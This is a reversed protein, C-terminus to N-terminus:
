VDALGDFDFSLNFNKAGHGERGYRRKPSKPLSVTFIVYDKQQVFSLLGGMDKVLRYCLPLGISQGGEAFPMFLTEPHEVTLDPAQNKFEIRIEKDSEYAKIILTGGQDMANTANRILNIFIQTLVEPDAYVAPLKSALDLTCRVQKKETEPSLLALCEALITNASCDKPHIEVPELYNRIRSLIRELRQSENLIIDCEYMDPFKQKLRQAFGGISVLPNRIEHAVEASIAGLTKLKERQVLTKELFVRDTIDLVFGELHEEGTGTGYSSLPISKLIAHIIHNDRHLFKCEMSVPAGSNFASQFMEKARDRDEPHIRNLFWDPTNMSEEPSYGLMSSCAENVFDTQLDRNLVYILLPINQVLQFHRQEVMRIQERLAQREQFRKLCLNFESISIPKKLFDYAGIKIAQVANDLSGYGTIFVVERLPDDKKLKSALELGSMDPLNIDIFALCFEEKKSVALAEGSQACVIPHYGEADLTIALLRGISPDDDVVLIKTSNSKETYTM